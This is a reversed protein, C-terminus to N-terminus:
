VSSSLQYLPLLIASVMVGVGLGLLIMILPEILTVLNTALHDVERSFFSSVRELVDQLRGTEEGVSVMQVMMTPAHKSRQFATVISNGENVEKITEFVLNKWVQNGVIGSVIELATVQDVGGRLLTALSRCFRVAYIREFLKNFIPVRLLMQDFFLHGAPTKSVIRAGVITLAIGVLILIWHHEFFNSIAILIRTSLPLAVSAEELVQTLKPVVFTMMIFGVIAMASVIFAPYILAGKIKSTLDYDKEQQEALYELVQELQGSTEGSRIMNIFFGGFVKPHREFADSLRAGSEVESAVDSMVLHLTPNVTQRAINKLADVLPVAASVMVSLTRAVVVLDRAKVPNLWAPSNLQLGHQTYPDLLLVEFGRETLAATAEAADAADVIGAQLRGDDTRVRYKFTAM